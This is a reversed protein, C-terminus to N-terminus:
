AWVSTHVMTVDLRNTKNDKKIEWLFVFLLWYVNKLPVSLFYHDVQSSWTSPLITLLSTSSFEPGVVFYMRSFGFCFWLVLLVLVNATAGVTVSVANMLRLQFFNRFKRLQTSIFVVFIVLLEKVWTFSNRNFPQFLTFVFCASFSTLLSMISLDGERRREFHELHLRM